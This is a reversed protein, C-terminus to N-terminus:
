VRANELDNLHDHLSLLPEAVGDSVIEGAFTWRGPGEGGFRADLNRLARKARDDARQLRIAETEESTTM